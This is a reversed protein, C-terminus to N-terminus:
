FSVTTIFYLFNPHSSAVILVSNPPHLIFKSGNLISNPVKLISNRLLSCCELFKLLIVLVKPHIISDIIYAIMLYMYPLLWQSNKNKLWIGKCSIEGLSMTHWCLIIQNSNSYVRNTGFICFSLNRIISVHLIRWTTPLITMNLLSVFYHGACHLEVDMCWQSICRHACWTLFAKETWTIFISSYQSPTLIKLEIFFSAFTLSAKVYM